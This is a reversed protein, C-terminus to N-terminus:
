FRILSELERWDGVEVFPHAERNWPQRYLVPTIGAVELPYCTELRDEVFCTKKRELLIDTKAEFAGTAVIELKEPVLGPITDLLWNRIPGVFPRATVFLLPGRFEALKALTEPAGAIPRLPVEYDGNLLKEIISGIIEPEIGICEELTYCTIDEKSVGKIGYEQRAIDLFLGMTDAVVGDIDFAVSEPDIEFGNNKMETNMRLGVTEHSFDLM